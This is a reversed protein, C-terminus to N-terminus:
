EAIKSSLFETGPNALTPCDSSLGTSPNRSIWECNRSLLRTTIIMGRYSLLRVESEKM